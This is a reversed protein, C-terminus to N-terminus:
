RMMINFLNKIKEFKADNFELVFNLFNLTLFFLYESIRNWLKLKRLTLTKLSGIAMAAIALTDWMASFGHSDHPQQTARCCLSASHVVPSHHAVQVLNTSDCCVPGTSSSSFSIPLQPRRMFFSFFFLFLPSTKKGPFAHGDPRMLLCTAAQTLAIAM